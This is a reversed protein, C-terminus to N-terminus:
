KVLDFNYISCGGGQSLRAINVVTAEVSPAIISLGTIIALVISGFHMSLM